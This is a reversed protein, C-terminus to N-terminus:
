RKGSPRTLLERVAKATADPTGLRVHYCRAHEAIRVAGDLGFNPHALANLTNAYVRAGAEAIRLSTIRPRAGNEPRELFFIARLLATDSPAVTARAKTPVYHLRGTTITNRPFSRIGPPLTKLCVARPYPLIQGTALDVPLLEDSVYKFGDALLTWVTTSKGTGSPAVFAVAAGRFAVVGAHVFYLDRRQQQLEITLDKDLLFLLDGLDEVTERIRGRRYSYAGTRNSGIRCAFHV